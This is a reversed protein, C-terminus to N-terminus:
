ILKRKIALQKMVPYSLSPSPSPIEWNRDYREFLASSLDELRVPHDRILGGQMEVQAGLETLFGKTEATAPTAVHSPVTLPIM